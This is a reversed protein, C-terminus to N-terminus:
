DLADLVLEAVLQPQELYPLHATGRIVHRRAAPVRAALAEYREILFPLDLDGWAVTTPVAVETLRGWTDIGSAGGDDPVGARLIGANMTRALERATGGVRGEPGAPGDLWLWTELRNAEELDGADVARDIAEDLRATNPELQSPLPAGTAAPGLLVLGTVRHPAVLAADLAVAGGRSNGVLWAPGPVLEGLVALLDDVHTFPATGPPTDGFGRRDYALVTSRGALRAAVERWGRRDTVGAHLLVITPSGSGVREGVLAIEGRRVEIPERRVDSM